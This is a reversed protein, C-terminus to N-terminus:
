YSIYHFNRGFPICSLEAALEKSALLSTNRYHTKVGYMLFYITTDEKFVFVWAVM